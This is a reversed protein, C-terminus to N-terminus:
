MEGTTFRTYDVIASSSTTGSYADTPVSHLTAACSYVGSQTQGFSSIMATSTHIHSGGLLSQSTNTATFGAPGTLVTKVIVPDNLATSLEVHVTCTM